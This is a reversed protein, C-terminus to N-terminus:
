KQKRGVAKMAEQFDKVGVAYLKMVRVGNEPNENEQKKFPIQTGEWMDTDSPILSADVLDILAQEQTANTTYQYDPFERFGLALFHDGDKKDKKPIVDCYEVTLVCRDGPIKGVPLAPKIGHKGMASAKTGKLNAM